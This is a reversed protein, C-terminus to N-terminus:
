STAAWRGAVRRPLATLVLGKMVSGGPRAAASRMFAGLARARQRNRRYLHGLRLYHFAKAEADALVLAHKEAFRMRNEIRARLAIASAGGPAPHLGLVVSTEVMLRCHQALRLAYDLDAAATFTEDFRVSEHLVRRLMLADVHPPQAILMRRVPDVVESPPGVDSLSRRSNAFRMGHVILDAEPHTALVGRCVEVKTPLWLDDDDLYTVFTTTLAAAGQNRAAAPGRPTDNRLMTVSPHEVRAPPDSAEDVVIVQDVPVTQEFVSRLAAALQDPRNRTPIVVGVTPEHGKV